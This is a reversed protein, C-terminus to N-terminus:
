IEKTYLCEEIGTVEYLADLLDKDLRGKISILANEDGGVVILLDSVFGEKERGLILVDDESDHVELLLMYDSKHKGCSIEKVFNVHQNLEQNESVLIRVSKISYLLEREADDLDGLTAAMRCLFGPIYLSIVDEEGRCSYYLHDIESSQAGIGSVILVFMISIFIRKM